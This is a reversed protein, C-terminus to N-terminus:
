ISKVFRIPIIETAPIPLEKVYMMPVDTNTILRGHISSIATGKGLRLARQIESPSEQLWKLRRLHRALKDKEEGAFKQLAEAVEGITRAPQLRKCELILVRGDAARWALVDVDGLEQAAGLETMQVRARAEWGNLELERVVEDEFAGGLAHATKGSFARMEQSTFFEQPMWAKSARGLLYNLAQMVQSIGFYAIGEDSSETCVVPRVVISLRRKFLWPWVDRAAFGKPAKAWKPRRELFFSKVFADCKHPDLGRNQEIRQKIEGVSTVVVVQGVDTALDSLEAFCDILEDPCLRYEAEFAAVFDRSYVYSAKSKGSDKRDEYYSSYEGAALQYEDNHQNEVFPRMIAAQYSRDIEYEGNPFVSMRGPALNGRIADSDSAVEILLSVRAVLLDFESDCVLRGGSLPCECLAMEALIRTALSTRNREQERTFAAEFGESVDNLSLVARATRRWHLRDTYIAETSCFSARLMSDLDLGNLSAKIEEWIRSVYGNLTATCADIGAIVTPKTPPEPALNIKVFAADVQKLWRPKRSANWILYDSKLKSSFIHVLRAGDSPLAADVAREVFDAAWPTHLGAASELARVFTGILAREGENGVKQFGSFFNAPLRIEARGEEKAVISAADSLVDLDSHVAAQIDIISSSDLFIEVVTALASSPGQDVFLAVEAFSDLFDSWIRYSQARQRENFSIGVSILWRAGKETEVAAALTSYEVVDTCVYIPRMTRSDFFSNRGYRECAMWKGSLTNIAHKDRSRRVNKRFELTSSPPVMLVAGERLPLDRPWIKFDDHVWQCFLSFDGFNFHKAGTGNVWTTQYRFKFFLELADDSHAALMDLDALGLSVFDWAQGLRPLSASLGRGVGAFVILTTGRKFNERAACHASSRELFDDLAKQQEPNFRRVAGWGREVCDQLDEYLVVVHVHHDVDRVFCWSQMRPLSKSDVKSILSPYEAEMRHLLRRILKAQKLELATEFVSFAQAAVVERLIYSRLASGVGAPLALVFEDGFRILPRLELATGQTVIQSPLALRDADTFVFPELDNPVIGLENLDEISFTVAAARADIGTNPAVTVDGGRSSPESHWRSLQVREAVADGVNLLAYVRQLAISIPPNQAALYEAADLMHQLHFDNSEWTGEFLRYNGQSTCINSVFVDEPPDEASSAGSSGLNRNLWRGIDSFTPKRKGDCFAVALHVATEIRITNAHFAPVTLLGACRSVAAKRNFEKIIRSLVKNEESGVQYM